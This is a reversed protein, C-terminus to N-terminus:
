IKRDDFVKSYAREFAREVMNEHCTCCAKSLKLSACLIFYEFFGYKSWIFNLFFDQFDSKSYKTKTNSAIIDTVTLEIFRLFFKM